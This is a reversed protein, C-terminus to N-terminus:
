LFWQFHGRATRRSNQFRPLQHSDVSSVRLTQRVRAGDRYSEAIQLYERDGNGKVRFFM